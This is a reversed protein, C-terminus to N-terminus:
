ATPKGRSDRKGQLIEFVEAIRKARTAATKASAVRYALGRRKGPTQAEWLARLAPDGRVADELADM